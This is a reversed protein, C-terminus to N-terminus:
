EVLHSVYSLFCPLFFCFGSLLSANVHHLNKRLGPYLFSLSTNTNTCVDSGSAAWYSVEQIQSVEDSLMKLNDQHKQQEERRAELYVKSHPSVRVNFSYFCLWAGNIEKCLSLVGVKIVEVQEETTKVPEPTYVTRDSPPQVLAFARGIPQLDSLLPTPLLAFLPWIGLCCLCIHFFSSSSRTQSRYQLLADPPVAPTCGNLM